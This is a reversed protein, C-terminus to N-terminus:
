QGSYGKFQKGIDTIDIDTMNLSRALRANLEITFYKPHWHKNTSWNHTRKMKLITEAAQRGIMEPTSYISAFAGAQVFSSSFGIVPVHHQYASFLVWRATKGNTLVPDYVALIVDNREALENITKASREEKNIITVDLNFGHKRAGSKLSSLNESKSDGLVIGINRVSPLIKKIVSFQRDTPQDLYICSFRNGGTDGKHRSQDETLKEVTMKPVLLSLIPTPNNERLAVETARVGVSVILDFRRGFVVSKPIASNQTLVTPVIEINKEPNVFGNNIGNLVDRYIKGEKSLIVLVSAKEDAEAATSVCLGPILGLVILFFMDFVRLLKLRETIKLLAIM